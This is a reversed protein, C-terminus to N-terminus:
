PTSPAVTVAAGCITLHIIHTNADVAQATSHIMTYCLSRTLPPASFVKPMSLQLMRHCLHLQKADDLKQMELRCSSVSYVVFMCQV